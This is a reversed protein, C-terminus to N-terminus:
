FVFLKNQSKDYCVIRDDKTLNFEILSNFKNFENNRFDNLLNGCLDYYKILNNQNLKVLINSQSDIKIIKTFYLFEFDIHGIALGTKRNIIKLFQKENPQDSCYYLLSNISGDILTGGVFYFPKELNLSQGYEHLINLKYDLIICKEDTQNWCFIENDNISCLKVCFDFERHSTRNLYQDYIDLHYSANSKDYFLSAIKFEWTIINRIVLNSDLYRFSVDELKRNTIKFIHKDKDGIIFDNLDGTYRPKMYIFIKCKNLLLIRYLNYNATLEGVLDIEDFQNLLDLYKFKKDLTFPQLYILDGFISEFDYINVLSEKFMCRAKYDGNQELLCKSFCANLDILLNSRKLNLEQEIRDILQRDTLKKNIKVGVLDFNLEKEQELQNIKRDLTNLKSDIVNILNDIINSNM